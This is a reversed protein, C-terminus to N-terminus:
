RPPTINTTADPWLPLVIELIMWVGLFFLFFGIFRYLRRRQHPQWSKLLRGEHKWADTLVSYAGCGLCLLWFAINALFTWKM